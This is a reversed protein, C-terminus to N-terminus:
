RSHGFHAYERQLVYGRLKKLQRFAYIAGVALLLWVDARFHPLAEFIRRLWWTELMEPYGQLKRIYAGLAVTSMLVAGTALLTLGSKALVAFKSIKGEFGLARKRLWEGELYLNEALAAPMQALTSLDGIKKMLVGPKMVRKRARESARRVYKRLLKAFDAEPCLYYLSADITLDSRNLALFDWSFSLKYRAFVDFFGAFLSTVSKDHYPM